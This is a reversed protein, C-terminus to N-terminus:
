KQSFLIQSPNLFTQFLFDITNLSKSAVRRFWHKDITTDEVL